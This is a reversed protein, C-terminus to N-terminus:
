ELYENLSLDDGIYPLSLLFPLYCQLKPTNMGIEVRIWNRTNGLCVRLQLLTNMM